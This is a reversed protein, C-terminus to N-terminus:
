GLGRRSPSPQSSPGIHWFSERDGGPDVAGRAAEARSRPSRSQRSPGSRGQSTAFRRSARPHRRPVARFRPLRAPTKMLYHVFAWSEAYALQQTAANELLSDDTLLQALPIWDRSEPQVLVQLRPLNAQGLLTHGTPRWLECYTALGESLCVPVDGRRNLLGTNFTLQHAEEHVLTFTNVRESRAALEKGSPRFDFIVLRNTDLNYHGGVAAGPDEGLFAKYSDVDKLTIVTLRRKPFEVDFGKDHFHKQYISALSKCIKLAQNRYADPADGVGRYHETESSRFSSLGAKKAQEQIEALEQVMESTDREQGEARAALGMLLTLVGLLWGRRTMEEQRPVDRGSRDPM